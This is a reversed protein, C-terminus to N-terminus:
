ESPFFQCWLKTGKSTEQVFVGPNKCEYFLVPIKTKAGGKRYPNPSFSATKPWTIPGMVNTAPQWDGEDSVTITTCSSNTGTMPIKKLIAQAQTLVEKIDRDDLQSLAWLLEDVNEPMGAIFTCTLGKELMGGFLVTLRQLETLYVDVSEGLWLKRAM